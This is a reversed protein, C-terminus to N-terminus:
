EVCLFDASLKAMYVALQNSICSFCTTALTGDGSARDNLMDLVLHLCFVDVWFHSRISPWTGENEFMGITMSVAMLVGFISGCVDLIALARQVIDPVAVFSMLQAVIAVGFLIAPARHAIYYSKTADLVCITNATRMSTKQDIRTM